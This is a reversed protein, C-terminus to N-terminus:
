PIRISTLRLACPVPRLASPLQSPYIIKYLYYLIL